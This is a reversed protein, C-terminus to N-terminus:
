FVSSVIKKKGKETMLSGVAFEAPLKMRNIVANLLHNEYVSSPTALLFKACTVQGFVSGKLDVQGTSYLFGTVLTEKDLKATVQKRFDTATRWALVTGEVTDKEQMWIAAHDVGNENAVVAAVSPYRLRVEKELILSDRAIAQVQGSFKERFIIQPAVLLVGKLQTESGVIIKSGSIVAIQGELSRGSLDIPSASYFCLPRQLFSHKITENELLASIDVVSDTESFEAKLLRQLKEILADQLKPLFRDSTKTEGYVMRDGSYSQGEIYARKLGAKPLYCTGRLETKGCLSLPRDLDALVLATQEATDPLFGILAAQMFNEQGSFARSIAVDFLGWEKLQLEVSDRLRGYLDLVVPKGYPVLEQEGMLLAMGSGANTRVETMRRSWQLQTRNGSAFLILSGCILAILLSVALAYYISGAKLM